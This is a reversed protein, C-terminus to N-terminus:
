DLLRHRATVTVAVAVATLGRSRLPQVAPQPCHGASEPQLLSAVTLVGPQHRQSDLHTCKHRHQPWDTRQATEDPEQVAITHDVTLQIKQWNDRERKKRADSLDFDVESKGKGKGEECVRVDVGVGGVTSSRTRCPGFVCVGHRGKPHQGELSM